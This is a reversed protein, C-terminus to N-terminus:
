PYFSLLSAMLLITASAAIIKAMTMNVFPGVNAPAECGTAVPMVLWSAGLAIFACLSAVSMGNRGTGDYEIGCADFGMGIAHVFPPLGHVDLACHQELFQLPGASPHAPRFFYQV